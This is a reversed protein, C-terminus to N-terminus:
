HHHKLPCPARGLGSNASANATIQVLAHTYLRASADLCAALTMGSGAHWSDYQRNLAEVCAGAGHQISLDVYGELAQIHRGPEHLIDANTGSTVAQLARANSAINSELQASM